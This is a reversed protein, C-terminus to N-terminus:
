GACAIWSPGVAGATVGLLKWVVAGRKMTCVGVYWCVLMCMCWGAVSMHYTTHPSEQQQSSPTTERPMITLYLRLTGFREVRDPQCLSLHNPFRHQSRGFMELDHQLDRGGDCSGGFRSCMPMHDYVCVVSGDFLVLQVLHTQTALSQALRQNKRDKTKKTDTDRVANEQTQTHKRTHRCTHGHVCVTLCECM